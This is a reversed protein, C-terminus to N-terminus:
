DKSLGERRTDQNHIINMYISQFIICNNWQGFLIKLNCELSRVIKFILNLRSHEGFIEEFISSYTRLDLACIRKYIIILWRINAISTRSKDPVNIREVSTTLNNEYERQCSARRTIRARNINAVQTERLCPRSPAHWNSTKSILRRSQKFNMTCLGYDRRSHNLSDSSGSQV